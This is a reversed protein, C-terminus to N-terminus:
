KLFQEALKQAEISFMDLKEISTSTDLINNNKM